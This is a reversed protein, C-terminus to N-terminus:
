NTKKGGTSKGHESVTHIIEFTIRKMREDFDCVSHGSIVQKLTEAIYQNGYDYYKNLAMELYGGPTAHHKTQEALYERSLLQAQMCYSEVSGCINRIAKEDPIQESRTFALLGEYWAYVFRRLYDRFSAELGSACYPILEVCPESFLPRFETRMASPIRAHDIPMGCEALTDQMINIIDFFLHTTSQVSLFPSAKEADIEFVKGTPSLFEMATRYADVEWTSRSDFTVFSVGVQSIDIGCVETLVNPFHYAAKVDSGIMDFYYDITPDPALSYIIPLKRQQKRLEKYYPILTLSVVDAVQQPRVGITIIDPEFATLAERAGQIQVPFPCNARTKEIDRASAKIGIVKDSLNDGLIRQYCPILFQALYGVGLILMKM